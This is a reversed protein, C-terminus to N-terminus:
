PSECIFAQFTFLCDSDNWTGDPDIEACDQGAFDNPQGPEWNEYGGSTGDEWVWSGEVADDSYGIWWDTGPGHIAMGDVLFDNEAESNISVLDYGFQNCLLQAGEWGSPFIDCFGYAKGDLFEVPCPCVNPGDDVLGNCDEDVADCDENAGPNIDSRGDNCDGGILTTGAPQECGMAQSSDAGFGDNDADVFWTVQDIADEDATGDCDNDEGDCVESAGPNTADNFDDCDTDDRVFGLPPACIPAFVSVNADGYGDTDADRFWFLPDDAVGDCNNDEGDCLEPAEPYTLNNGDDCDGGTASTGPPQECSVTASADTGFGDRDGDVFWTGQDIADTDVVDDCNDDFGNCVEDAGPNVEPRQDDCDQDDVVFGAPALCAVTSTNPDGFADGDADAYWTSGGSAGVDIGNACDNDIGDCVEEADPNVAPNGDDCDGAFAVTGPPQTCSFVVTAPDGYGDGDADTYWPDGDPGDDAVGSCDNDLGDCVEPAGPFVIDLLDDCDGDAAVTGAPADCAVVAEGTGFGDGDADGFWSQEGLAGAEDAVGDCNEDDGDCVEVAGPFATPDGDDCDGSDPSTGGPQSCATIFVADIGFGDNDADIYWDSADIAGEDIPGDCDNDRGDCLEDAGPFSTPDTDDCDGGEDAAGDAFCAEFATADDGFGDADVDAFWLSQDVAGRYADGDCNRDLDDCTEDAGPFISSEDDDCDGGTVIYGPGPPACDVVQDDGGFGDADADLFWTVDTVGDDAVGNCDNDLGDCLEDAGPYVLEDLDNCDERGQLVFDAGPAECSDVVLGTGFGDGDGDRWWPRDSGDEDVAGNCDNDLGDCIEEAGPFVEPSLDDCDEGQLVYEPGPQACDSVAGADTGFGDGDADPFWTQDVVGDDVVGNCDDDAGNCQETAAPNVSPVEDNCDEEGVEVFGRGPAECAEIIVGAGFGDADGDAWWSVQPAGDDEVGNCDNDIGDCVEDADPNVRDDLDDCDDANDVGDEDCAVPAGPDGFGDGDEDAWRAEGLEDIAGECNNDVGDCVEFAAPSVDGRQDDCDSGDLVYDPGPPACDMVATNPDGFGDGDLDLYFSVTAVNDDVVGNCDNDAGDCLEPAGPRVFPNTDDCDDSAPSVGPELECVLGLPAAGVGDLDADLFAEIGDVPDNDAVEDCDDDVGNCLEDAGPFIADEDDDCDSLDRVFPGAPSACSLVVREPDGYGDGDGDFAWPVEEVDDDIAGNCDNDIGDCAEPAGPFVTDEADNCDDGLEVWGDAPCAMGATTPSGFGDGDGDFFGAVEGDAGPEDRLGDCDEDVGGCVEAAGPNVSADSDDCDDGTPVLDGGDCRALLAGSGYGDGDGDLYGEVAGEGDDEDIAGDCDDDIGNGCQEPANPSVSADADNCDAGGCALSDVGDGDEDCVPDPTTIVTSGGQSVTIPVIQGLDVKATSTGCGLVAQEASAQVVIDGGTWDGVDGQLRAVIVDGPALEGPLAMPIGSWSLGPPAPQLMLAELLVPSEGTNALTVTTSAFGDGDDDLVIPDPTVILAVQEIDTTCGALLALILPLTPRHVTRELSRMM